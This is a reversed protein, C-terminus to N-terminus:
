ASGEEAADWRAEAFLTSRDFERGVGVPAGEDNRALLGVHTMHGTDDLIEARLERATYLRDWEDVMAACYTVHFEAFRTDDGPDLREITTM